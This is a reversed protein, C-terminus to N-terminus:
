RDCDRDCAVTRWRADIPKYQDKRMWLLAGAQEANAYAWATVRRSADISHVIGAGDFAAGLARGSDHTRRWWADLHQVSALADRKAANCRRDALVFNHGLDHPYLSWPVFHDVARKRSRLSAACYFCADHQLERLIPVLAELDHREAGFMFAALDTAEGHILQNAPLRRVFRLWAGRVLDEILGHFRRFCFAIGPRLEISGNVEVSPYLFEVPEGGLTQLKFLPMTRVIKAVKAVLSSWTTSDRELQALSMHKQRAEVLLSVIAAQKDTNQQLVGGRPHPAAQRWYIRIFREALEALTVQMRAGSDDGNEVALDALALLLAFKYSATFSGESLLRQMNLLFAIQEHDRPPTM